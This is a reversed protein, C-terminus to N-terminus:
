FFSVIHRGLPWIFTFWFLKVELAFLTVNLVDFKVRKLLNGWIEHLTSSPDRPEPATGAGTGLDELSVGRPTFETLQNISEYMKNLGNYVIM